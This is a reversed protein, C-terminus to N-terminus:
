RTALPTQLLRYGLVILFFLALYAAACLAIGGYWVGDPVSGAITDTLRHFVALVNMTAHLDAAPQQLVTAPHNIVADLKAPTM